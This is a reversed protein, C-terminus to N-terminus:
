VLLIEEPDLVSHLLLHGWDGEMDSHGALYLADEETRPCLLLGIFEANPTPNAVRGVSADLAMQFTVSRGNLLKDVPKMLPRWRRLDAVDVDLHGIRLADISKLNPM